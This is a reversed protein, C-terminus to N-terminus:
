KGDTKGELATRARRSAFYAGIYDDYTAAGHVTMDGNDNFVKDAFPELSKSADNLAAKLREAEAEATTARNQMNLLAAEDHKQLPRWRGALAEDRERELRRILSAAEDAKDALESALNDLECNPDCAEKRVRPTLEDLRRCLEDIKAKTLEAM